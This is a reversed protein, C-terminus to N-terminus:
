NKDFMVWQRGGANNILGTETPCEVQVEILEQLLRKQQVKLEYLERQEKEIQTYINIIWSDSQPCCERMDVCTIADEYAEKIHEKSEKVETVV